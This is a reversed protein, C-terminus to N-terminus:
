SLLFVPSASRFCSLQAESAKSARTHWNCPLCWWSLKWWCLCWRQEIWPPLCGLPGRHPILWNSWCQQACCSPECTFFLLIRKSQFNQMMSKIPWGCLRSSSSKSSSSSTGKLEKRWTGQCHWLRHRHYKYLDTGGHHRPLSAYGFHGGNMSSPRADDEVMMLIRVLTHTDIEAKGRSPQGPKVTGSVFGFGSFENVLNNQAIDGIWWRKLSAM